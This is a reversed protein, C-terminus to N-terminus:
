KLATSPDGKVLLCMRLFEDYRVVDPMGFGRFYRILNGLESSTVRIGKNADLHSQLISRFGDSMICGKQSTIQARKFDNILDKLRASFAQYCKSCTTAVAEYKKFLAEKEAASLNSASKDAAKPIEVKQPIDLTVERPLSSATKWYPQEQFM